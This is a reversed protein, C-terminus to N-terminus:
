FKIREYFIKHTNSDVSIFSVKDNKSFVKKLKERFEDCSLSTAIAYTSKTIEVGNNEDKFKYFDQYSNGEKVDYTVIRTIM